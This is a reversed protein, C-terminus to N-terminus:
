DIGACLSIDCSVNVYMTVADMNQISIPCLKSIWKSQVVCHRFEAIVDESRYWEPNGYSSNVVQLTCGDPFVHLHWAVPLMGYLIVREVGRSWM